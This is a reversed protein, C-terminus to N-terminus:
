IIIANYPQTNKNKKCMLSSKHLLVNCSINKTFYEDYIVQIGTEEEFMEITVPDIYEGWNYVYVKGNPYKGSSGCGTLTSVITVLCLGLAIFKKM